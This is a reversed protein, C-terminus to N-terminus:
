CRAWKERVVESLSVPKIVFQGKGSYALMQQALEAARMASTQVGEISVRAPSAPPIDALAMEANGLVGMLLNNFDHAIGGALIGLSDLKQAHQVQAELSRREGEALKQETLDVFVGRVGQFEGSKLIITSAHFLMPFTSGDKRM